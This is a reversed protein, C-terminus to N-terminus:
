SIGEGNRKHWNCHCHACLWRVKLPYNYNDHHGHLNELAGCSECREGRVMKGDRLANSVANHARYKKKNKKRWEKTYEPNGHFGRM